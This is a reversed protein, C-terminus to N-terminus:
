QFFDLDIKSNIIIQNITTTISQAKKGDIIITSVEKLPFIIGEQEHFDYYEIITTNHPNVNEKKRLFYKKSDFYLFVSDKNFPNENLIKYYKYDKEEIIKVLKFKINNSKQTLIPFPYFDQIKSELAEGKIITESKENNYLQSMICTKGDYKLEHIQQLNAIERTVLSYYLNPYKYAVEGQIKLESAELLETNFKKHLTKIKELKKIGGINKLYMNIIAEANQPTKIDNQANIHNCITVLMLFVLISIYKQM